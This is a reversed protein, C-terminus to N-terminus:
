TLKLSTPLDAPQRMNFGEDILRGIDFSLIDTIIQANVFANMFADNDCVINMRKVQNKSTITIEEKFKSIGKNAVRKSGDSVTEGSSGTSGYAANDGM